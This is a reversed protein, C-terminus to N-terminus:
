INYLGPVLPFVADEVTDMGFLLDDEGDSGNGSGL